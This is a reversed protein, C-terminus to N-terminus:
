EGNFLITYVGDPGPVMVEVRESLIWMTKCKPCCAPYEKSNVVAQYGCNKCTIRYQKM